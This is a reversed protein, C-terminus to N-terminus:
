VPSAAECTPASAITPREFSEEAASHVLSSAHVRNAGFEYEDVRLKGALGPCAEAVGSLRVASDGDGRDWLCKGSRPDNTCARDCPRNWRCYAHREHRKQLSLHGVDLGLWARMVHDAWLEEKNCDTQDTEADSNKKWRDASLAVRIRRL